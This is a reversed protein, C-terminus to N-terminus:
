VVHDPALRCAHDGAEVQLTAHRIGFRRALTDEAASLFADDLSAGPRVLHATLATETTSMAWIHLDHVESVGPLTRLYHEVKSRDIADPVAALSLQFSQRLIGWTGWVIFGAILLSAAADLWFWGTVYIAAAVVIVGVSVAADGALHLIAARINLDAKRGAALMWASLGNVIIAAAAVAMVTTAAVAGPQLLRRVAELAIAGTAILLILSNCLAALISASRFGYTYRRTPQWQAVGHAGWALLLALVDGFNHGADALLAMSNGVIGYFVQAGVLAGNLAVTVAFARNFDVPAHVHHGHHDSGCDHQHDRASRM